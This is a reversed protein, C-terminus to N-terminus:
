GKVCVIQKLTHVVKVLDKQAEMVADIDKYAMPTEDIVDKDKRCEVGETAKIHDEVSFKAKAQARSLARGAGHSCSHFSEESGLGEVIYSKAGMSGPIIGLEGKKASVAGKRTIYLDKGYHRELQVYNHHCNVAELNAEFDPIRFKQRNKKLVSILNEMMLQRNLRAYKQAWSVAFVYDDFSKTGEKLYALNSDPLQIDLKQMEKRAKEIFYTGIRNGIGRSGSHLMLWVRDEEDLSIELFHNGTGLTGLHNIHNVHDNKVLDPSREIIKRYGPLLETKWIDVVRKPPSSRWSGIDDPGGDDTRGHPIEAEIALRIQKLNQPLDNARLTTRVAIMGCGIDVGVASPIIAKLTPIVSGVTSGIGVHADPMAAIHPYVIPLQAAKMLQQKTEEEFPVGRCWMKIPVGKQGKIVEFLARKM